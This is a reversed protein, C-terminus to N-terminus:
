QHGKQSLRINLQSSLRQIIITSLLLRNFKQQPQTWLLVVLVDQLLCNTDEEVWWILLSTLIIILDNTLAKLVRRHSVPLEGQDLPDVWSHVLLDVIISGQHVLIIFLLDLESQSVHNFRPSGDHTDDFMVEYRFQLSLQVQDRLQRVGVDLIQLHCDSFDSFGDIFEDFHFRHDNLGEEMFESLGDADENLEGHITQLRVFRNQIAVPGHNAGVQVEQLLEELHLILNTGEQRLGVLADVVQLLTLLLGLAQSCGYGVFAVNQLFRYQPLDQVGHVIESQVVLVLQVIEQNLPVQNGGQEVELHMPVDELHLILQHVEQLVQYTEDPVVSHGDLGDDPVLDLLHDEDIMTIGPRQLDQFAVGLVQGHDVLDIDMQM